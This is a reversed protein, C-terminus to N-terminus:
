FTQQEDGIKFSRGIAKWVELYPQHRNIDEINSLKVHEVFTRRAIWQGRRAGTFCTRKCLCLRKQQWVQGNLLEQSTAFKYGDPPPPAAAPVSMSQASGSTNIVVLERSPTPSNRNQPREREKKM